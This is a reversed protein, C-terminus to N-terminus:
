EFWHRVQQAPYPTYITIYLRQQSLDLSCERLSCREVPPGDNLFLSFITQEDKWETLTDFPEAKM